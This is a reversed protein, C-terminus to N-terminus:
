LGGAARARIRCAAAAVAGAISGFFHADVIVPGGAASASGPLAGYLQEYGIKAVLVAILVASEAPRDRLGALLGAALLGHLLGSLGVYWDLAPRLFWFGLDIGAIVCVVIWLWTANRHREGVLVWVLILGAANLLLHAWGLHVFHGSALRWFEGAAISDREYRLLPRTGSGIAQLSAAVAVASLPLFWRRRLYFHESPADSEPQIRPM